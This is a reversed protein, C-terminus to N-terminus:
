NLYQKPDVPVSNKRVEFHLKPQNAQGSQGSTAIVEGRKVAQNRKVKLSDAHGYVTVLGNDHRILVTNGFEALGDGAYIVTGNDAARVASGKVLAIDIGDNPKGNDNAKFGTIVSGQAPWNLGSSSTPAIAPASKISANPVSATTTRDTNAPAPSQVQVNRAGTANRDVGDAGVQFVNGGQPITLVQGIRINGDDMGNAAQIKSMSVGSRSAIGSLTDGSVVKYRGDGPLVDGALSRQGDNPLAPRTSPRAINGAISGTTTQDLQAGNQSQAQYTPRAAPNPVRTPDVDFISGSTSKASATQPNNDPASVKASPSYTYTPIILEQGSQVSGPKDIGNVRLIEIAPVGFRRSLNYVTEGSKVRVRTGGLASWGGASAGAIQNSANSSAITNVTSATTMPDINPVANVVPLQQALVPRPMTNQVITPATPYSAVPFNNTPLLQRQQAILPAAIAGTAMTSVGLPANIANNVGVGVQPRPGFRSATNRVANVARQQLSQQQGFQPVLQQSVQPVARTVSATYTPDVGNPIMGNAAPALLQQQDYIPYAAGTQVPYAQQPYAQAVNQQYVPQQQYVNQQQAMQPAAQPIAATYLGAFRTADSSCGAAVGATIIITAAKLLAVHRRHVNLICMCVCWAARLFFYSCSIHNFM